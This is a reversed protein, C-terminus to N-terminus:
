DVSNWRLKDPCPNEVAIWGSEGNAYVSNM